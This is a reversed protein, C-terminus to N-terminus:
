VQAVSNDNDDQIIKWLQAIYAILDLYTDEKDSVGLRTMKVSIM